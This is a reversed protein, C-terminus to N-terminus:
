ADAPVGASAEQAKMAMRYLAIALRARLSQDTINTSVDGALSRCTTADKRRDECESFVNLLMSNRGDNNRWALAMQVDTVPEMDEFKPLPTSRFERKLLAEALAGRFNWYEMDVSRCGSRSAAAHIEKYILGPGDWETWAKMRTADHDVLCDAFENLPRSAYAPSAVLGVCFAFALICHHISM